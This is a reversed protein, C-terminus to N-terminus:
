EWDEGGIKAGSIRIFVYASSTVSIRENANPPRRVTVAVRRRFKSIDHWTRPMLESETRLETFSYAEGDAKKYSWFVKQLGIANAESFDGTNVKTVFRRAAITPLEFIACALAVLTIFVFLWRISFRPRM